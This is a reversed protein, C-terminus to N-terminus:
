NLDINQTKDSIFLAVIASVCTSYDQSKGYSEENGMKEHDRHLLIFLKSFM